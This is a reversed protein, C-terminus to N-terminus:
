CKGSCKDLRMKGRDRFGTRYGLEAAAALAAKMDSHELGHEKVWWDVFKDADGRFYPIIPENCPKKTPDLDDCIVIRTINQQAYAWRPGCSALVLLILMALYSFKWTWLHQRFTM